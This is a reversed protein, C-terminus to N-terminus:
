SWLMKDMRQAIRELRCPQIPEYNIKHTALCFVCPLKNVTAGCCDCRMPATDAHLATVNLGASSLLKIIAPDRAIEACRRPTVPAGGQGLDMLRLIERSSRVGALIIAAFRIEIPSFNGILGELQWSAAQMRRCDRCLDHKGIRIICDCKRCKLGTTTRLM